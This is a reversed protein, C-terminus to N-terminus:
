LFKYFNFILNIFTILNLAVANKSGSLSHRIFYGKKTLLTVPNQRPVKSLFCCGWQEEAITEGM